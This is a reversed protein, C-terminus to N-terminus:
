ELTQRLRLSQRLSIIPSIAASRAQPTQYHVQSPHLISCELFWVLSELTGNALASLSFIFLPTPYPNATTFPPPPPPHPHPPPPTM